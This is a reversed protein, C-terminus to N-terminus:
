QDATDESTTTQIGCNSDKAVETSILDLMGDFSVKIFEFLCAAFYDTELIDQWENLLEITIASKM